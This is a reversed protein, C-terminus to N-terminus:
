RIYDSPTVNSNGSLISQAIVDELTATDEESVRGHLARVLQNFEKTLDALENPSIIDTSIDTLDSLRM